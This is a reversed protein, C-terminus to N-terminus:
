PGTSLAPRNQRYHTDREGDILDRSGRTNEITHQISPHTRLFTRIKPMYMGSARQHEAGWFFDVPDIHNSGCFVYISQVEKPTFVGKYVDLSLDILNRKMGKSEGKLAKVYEARTAAIPNVAVPARQVIPVPKPNHTKNVIARSGLVGGAALGVGLVAAGVPKVWKKLTGRRPSGNPPGAAPNRRLFAHARNGVRRISGIISGM